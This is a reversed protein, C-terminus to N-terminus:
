YLIIMVCHMYHKAHTLQRWETVGGWEFCGHMEAQFVATVILMLFQTEPRSVTEFLISSDHKGDLFQWVFTKQLAETNDRWNKCGHKGM